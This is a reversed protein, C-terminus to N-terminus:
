TDKNLSKKYFIMITHVFFNILCFINLLFLLVFTHIGLPLKFALASFPFPQLIFPILILASGINNQFAIYFYTLFYINGVLVILCILFASLLYNVFKNSKKLLILAASFSVYLLISHIIISLFINKFLYSTAIYFFALFLIIGSINLLYIIFTIIKINSFM